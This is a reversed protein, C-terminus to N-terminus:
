IPWHNGPRLAPCKRPFPLARQLLPCGGLTLILVAKLERLYSEIPDPLQRMEEWVLKKRCARQQAGSGVWFIHETLHYFETTPCVTSFFEDNGM